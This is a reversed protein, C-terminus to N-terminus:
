KGSKRLFRYLEERRGLYREVPPDDPTKAGALAPNPKAPCVSMM